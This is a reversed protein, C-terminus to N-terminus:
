SNRLQHSFLWGILVSSLIAPIISQLAPGWGQQWVLYNLLVGTAFATGLLFVAHASLAQPADDQDQRVTQFYYFALGAVIFPYLQSVEKSFPNDYGGLSFDYFGHLLVMGTFTALFATGYNKPYRLFRFLAHGTLGTMALHMFNATVFRGILGVEGHSAYFLINEKVAFGIGVCSAAMLAQAPTGNRLLLLLPLVCVLKSIEERLGVSAVFYLLDQGASGSWTLGHQAEQLEGLVLTIVTSFMGLPVGALSIWWQQPPLRSAKHLSIFWILGSLLSLLLYDTRQLLGTFSRLVTGTIVRVDMQGRAAERSLASDPNSHVAQYYAPQSLLRTTVADWERTLALDVARRRAEMAQPQAGIAEYDALAGEYDQTIRKLDAAMTGPLDPADPMPIAALWSILEPTTEQTILAQLWALIGQQEVPTLASDALLLGHSIATPFPSPAPHGQPAPDPPLEPANGHTDETDAGFRRAAQVEERLARLLAARDLPASKLVPRVAMAWPDELKERPPDQPRLYGLWVANLFFVGLIVLIARVLTAPDRSLAHLQRRSILM